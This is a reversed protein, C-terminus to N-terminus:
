DMIQTKPIETTTESEFIPVNYQLNLISDEKYNTLILYEQCIFCPSCFFHALCDECPELHEICMNDTDTIEKIQYRVDGAYLGVCCRYLLDSLVFSVLYSKTSLYLCSFVVSCMFIINSYYCCGTFITPKYFGQFERLIKSNYGFLCMPFMCGVCIAVNKDMIYEKIYEKINNLNLNM